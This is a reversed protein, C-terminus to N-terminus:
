FALFEGPCRGTIPLVPKKKREYVLNRGDEGLM